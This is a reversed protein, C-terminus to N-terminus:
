LYGGAWFAGRGPTAVRPRGARGANGSPLEARAAFILRM